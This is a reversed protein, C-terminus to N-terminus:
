RSEQDLLEPNDFINGVVECEDACFDGFSNEFKGDDLAFSAIDSDWFVSQYGM